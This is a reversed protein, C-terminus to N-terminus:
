QKNAINAEGRVIIWRGTPGGRYLFYTETPDYDQKGEPIFVFRDQEFARGHLSYMGMAESHQGAHGSVVVAPTDSARAMALLAASAALRALSM